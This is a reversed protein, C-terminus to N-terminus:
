YLMLDERLTNTPNLLRQIWKIKMIYNLKSDIDFIGQGGRWVSLKALHRLLRIKEQELPLQMNM